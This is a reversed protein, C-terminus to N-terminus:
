IDNTYSLGEDTFVVQLCLRPETGRKHLSVAHWSGDSRVLTVLRGLRPEIRRVVSNPREDALIELCGGDHEGWDTSSFYFIQTVVKQPKDLHPSLHDGSTYRWLTLERKLNELSLGTLREVASCYEAGQLLLVLRKWTHSMGELNKSDIPAAQASYTKDLRTSIITTFRTIPFERQLAKTEELDCFVNDFIAWSFPQKELNESQFYWLKLM